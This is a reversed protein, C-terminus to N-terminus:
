TTPVTGPASCTSLLGNGRHGRGGRAGSRGDSGRGWCAPQLSAKPFPFYTLPFMLDKQRLCSFFTGGSPPERGVAKGLTKTFGLPRLYHRCRAFHSSLVPLRGPLQPPVLRSLDTPAQFLPIGSFAILATLRLWKRRAGM